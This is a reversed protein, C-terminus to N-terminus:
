QQIMGRRQINRCKILSFVILLPLLPVMFILIILPKELRKAGAYATIWGDNAANEVRHGRVLLRHTNIGYPTCTVLTVYDMNQDINLANVEDPEVTLIRDVQYTLTEGLTYLAFIDGEAMNDLGTLLKSSPLGQHGAIISHTGSGGVPLSTGM